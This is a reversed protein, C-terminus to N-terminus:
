NGPSIRGALEEAPYTWVEALTPHYHPMAALERVTMNGHMAAIIEHILEGGMPGVCAGGLIRGTAPDALLKVFGHMADMIISKGHDNFPYSASLFPIGKANADKETLGVCAVQPDTFVVTSLLRYDMERSQAPNVINHAAIEGQQIAIHVIEYPGSCDGCAYIHPVSTQQRGNTLIRAGETRVGVAELGLAATNPTRGLGFFIEDAGAELRQGGKEFTVVKRPGEQRADLLRTSTHVTIGEGRFVEEIVDGAGADLVKLVHPSRQILTVKTDFRSFFQAFEVAVAGGGLVVLSKPPRALKLADDSTLYGAERLGPLPPDSVRSGTAIIFHRATLSAGDGLTLTFADAFRASQRIFEFSGSSLQERRYAAFEEIVADKRAMVREFDFRVAGPQLGWVASKRATHRVEAAHLLAKTPMCGRLICLGGVEPGRELLATRFGKGAALRAAAFGASGAGIVALDFDTATPDDMVEILSPDVPTRRLHDICKPATPVQKVPDGILKSSFHSATFRTGVEIM